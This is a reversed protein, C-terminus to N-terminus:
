ANSQNEWFKKFELIEKEVEWKEIELLQDNPTWNLHSPSIRDDSNSELKPWPVQLFSVSHDSYALVHIACSHMHPASFIVPGQELGVDPLLSEFIPMKFSEELKRLHQKGKKTNMKPRYIQVKGDDGLHKWYDTVDSESKFSLGYFEGTSTYYHMNAFKSDKLALKSEELVRQREKRIVEIKAKLEDGVVRFYRTVITM